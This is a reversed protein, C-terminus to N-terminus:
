GKKFDLLLARYAKSPLDAGLLKEMFSSAQVLLRLDVGTAVGLGQSGLRPYM